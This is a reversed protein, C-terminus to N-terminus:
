WGRLRDTPATAGLATSRYSADPSIDHGCPVLSFAQKYCNLVNLIIVCMPCVGGSFGLLWM